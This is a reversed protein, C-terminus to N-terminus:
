EICLDCVYCPVMKFEQCGQYRHPIDLEFLRLKEPKAAYAVVMLWIDRPIHDLRTGRYRALSACRGIGCSPYDYKDVLANAACIFCAKTYFWYGPLECRIQYVGLMNAIIKRVVLPLEAFRGYPRGLLQRCRGLSCNSSPEDNPLTAAKIAATITAIRAEM